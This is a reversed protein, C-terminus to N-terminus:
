ARLYPPKQRVTDRGKVGISPLSTSFISYVVVFLLCVGWRNRVATDGSAAWSPPWGGRKEMEATELGGGVDVGVGSGGGGGGEWSGGGRGVGGGGGGGSTGGGEAGGATLFAEFPMGGGAGGDGDFDQRAGAAAAAAATALAAEASGLRASVPGIGMRSPSFPSPDVSLPHQPQPSPLLLGVGSLSPLPLPLAAPFVASSPPPAGPAGLQSGASAAETRRPSPAVPRPAPPHQGHEASPRRPIGLAIAIAHADLTGRALDQGACANITMIIVMMVMM